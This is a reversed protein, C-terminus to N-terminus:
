INYRYLFYYKGRKKLTYEFKETVTKLVMFNGYDGNCNKEHMYQECINVQKESLIIRNQNETGINKDFKSDLSSLFTEIFWLNKNM